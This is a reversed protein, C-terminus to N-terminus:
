VFHDAMKWILTTENSIKCWKKEWLQIPHNKKKWWSLLVWILQTSELFKCKHPSIKLGCKIVAKFPNAVDELHQKHTSFIVANDLSNIYRERKPTNEINHWHVTALYNTICQSVYTTELVPLDTNCLFADCLLIKLSYSVLRLTHYVDRLDAVGM